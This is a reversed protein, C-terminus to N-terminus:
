HGGITIWEPTVRSQFHWFGEHVLGALLLIFAPWAWRGMRAIWAGIPLALLFAFPVYVPFLYRGQVSAKPLGTQLYTDYHKLFYIVAYTLFVTGLMWGWRRLLSELGKRALAIWGALALVYLTFPLWLQPQDKRMGRHAHIGWVSSQVVKLFPDVVWLRGKRPQGELRKNNEAYVRYPTSDCREDKWVDGCNPYLKGYDRLNTGYLSGAWLGLTGCFATLLLVRPRRWQSSVLTVWLSRFGLLGAAALSVAFPLATIKTLAAAFWAILCAILCALSERRLGRILMWLSITCLLIVLSDYNAAGSMFNFMLTNSLIALSMLTPFLGAGIERGIALAALVAGFVFALGILRMVRRTVAPKLPGITKLVTGTVIYYLPARPELPGVSLTEPADVLSFGPHRTWHEAVLTHFNEDPFISRKIRLAYYAGQALFWALLLIVFWRGGRGWEQNM